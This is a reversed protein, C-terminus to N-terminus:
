YLYPENTSSARHTFRFYICLAMLPIFVYTLGRKFRSSRTFFFAKADPTSVKVVQWGCWVMFPICFWFTSHAFTVFISYNTVDHLNDIM